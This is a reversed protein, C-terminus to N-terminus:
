VVSSYDDEVGGDDVRAVWALGRGQDGRALRRWRGEVEVGKEGGGVGTVQRRSRWADVRMTTPKLHHARTSEECAHRTGHMDGKTAEVM